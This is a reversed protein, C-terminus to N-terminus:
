KWMSYLMGDARELLMRPKDFECVKVNDLVMIRDSDMVTSLRHAITLVTCEKFGSRIAKHVQQDNRMDVSATAEDLLVIKAETLMARALCVLQRQGASLNGGAESLSSDL